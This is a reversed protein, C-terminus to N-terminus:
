SFKLTSVAEFILRSNPLPKCHLIQLADEVYTPKRMGNLVCTIGPTSTLTLLSKQSFPASHYNAPLLPNMVKTITEILQRNKESAERHMLRLCSLLEPVYRDRWNQWREAKDGALHKNGVQFVQNVHPAVMQTEIQEWHQLNQIGVRLRPLEESWRFFDVPQLGKGSYPILPAFDKRYEEELKTLTPLQLEWTSDEEQHEPDALRLLGGKKSPIANLPRNVLVALNAQQAFELTSQTQNEGTNPTFVAGAEFVNMPFQLVRFHHNAIGLVQAAEQAAQVMHSVSTAEPNEPPDTCTNSSVGYYQLRGKVVQEEFYLFAQQLRRYFERRIGQLTAEPVSLQKNKANSLYYEPNHLLCIDLTELGLRDLSNELQEDLFAPHLCHWLGEQYKVIDPYPQGSQERAEAQKLNNGQIYGIKSVIIFQERSFKQTSILQNLVKGILQESGGDSYNTSTDILNCGETLAKQLAQEHEENGLTVRYSGFGLRSTTLNTNGLVTYGDASPPHPLTANLMHSVYAATGEPTAHGSLGAVKLASSSPIASASSSHSLHQLALSAEKADTIPAQCSFNQCIFLAAKGNILQKGLLLPHESPSTQPDHHGIIRNPLYHHHVTHKLEEYDPSGPTGILALEVPGRLLLDLAILSKAFGRPIKAM